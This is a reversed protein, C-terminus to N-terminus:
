QYRRTSPWQGYLSGNWSFIADQIESASQSCRIELIGDYEYDVIYFSNLGGQLESHQEFDQWSSMSNIIEANNENWSFIWMYEIFEYNWFRILIDTRSDLNIDKILEIKAAGGYIVPGTNWLINGNKYIGFITSDYPTSDNLDYKESVFLVCNELSNNLDENKYIFGRYKGILSDAFFIYSDYAQGYQSRIVSNISNIIAEEDNSQSYIRNTVAILFVILMFKVKRM